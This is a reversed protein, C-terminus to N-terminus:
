DILTGILEGSELKAKCSATVCDMFERMASSSRTGKLTAFSLVWLVEPSKLPIARVRNTRFEQQAGPHVMLTYGLGARVMENALTLSNVELALNLPVGAKAAVNEAMLRLAHPAAPLILPLRVVDVMRCSTGILESEWLPLADPPAILCMKVAMIPTFNVGGSIPRGWLLGLDVRGEQLWEEVFGSYGEFVNLRVDPFKSGFEKLTSPLLVNGIVTPVGISLPGSPKNAGARVDDFIRSTERELDRARSLLIQGAETPAVTRGRRYLLPVGIDAELKRVLKSVAPQTLGLLNAAKSFTGLEAVHVFYQISKVVPTEIRM